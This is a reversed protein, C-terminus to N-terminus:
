LKRGRATYTDVIQALRRLNIPKLLYESFGAALYRERDGPLALSTIAIVPTATINANVHFHHIIQLGDMDPMQLDLLVLDPPQLSVKQIADMGNQATYVHLSREMFYSQMAMLSIEDNDVILIQPVADRPDGQNNTSDNSTSDLIAPTFTAAGSQASKARKANRGAPAGQAVPNWPLSVIFRSGKGPDSELAISGGHMETLRRVLSLGLGTGQHQRSFSTDLQVFPQFLRASDESSIGIGTDWVTFKVVRNDSDGVVELGVSGGELTFKVANSLLNVLIQVLRQEDAEVFAVSDDYTQFLKIRKKRAAERILQLSNQCAAQVAVESPNLSLKGAEIKSVDLIDNILGLLHRGSKEVSSLAELQFATVPGFIEDSLSEALMLISNLPTRLEHSMNALFEDKLQAIAELENARKRLVSENLKRDTIDQFAALVSEVEGSASHIPTAHIELRVRRNALQMEIDDAHEIIGNQLSLYIPLHELPYPQESDAQYLPFQAIFADFTKLLLGHADLFRSAIDNVYRLTHQQDVVLVSLPIADLIQALRQESQSLAREAKTQETVNRVLTLVQDQSSRVLRAEFFRRQEGNPQREGNLCGEEIAIEDEHTSFKLIEAEGTALVQALLTQFQKVLSQPLIASIHQGVLSEAPMFFEGPQKVYYDVFYGKSSIVAMLDPIAQLIARKRESNIRETEAIQKQQTIDFLVGDIWRATGQEDYIAQGHDSVWRTSGDKHIIRYELHYPQREQVAQYTAQRVWGRDEPHTIEEYSIRKNYFFDEASYGTLTETKENLLVETWREDNLCRYVMGPLNHILTRYRQESEQLASLLEIRELAIAVYASLTTLLHLDHSTLACREDSEVNLVGVVKGQSLIPAAIESVINPAFRIFDADKAVDKVYVAKGTRAARGTVGKQLPIRLFGSIIEIEYGVWQQLVLDNGVCTFFTVFPYGFTQHLSEVVTRYFTPADLVDGIQDRMRHLLALDRARRDNPHAPLPFAAVPSVTAASESPLKASQSKPNISSPTKAPHNVSSPRRLHQGSEQGRKDSTTM